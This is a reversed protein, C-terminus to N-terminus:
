GADDYEELSVEAEKDDIVEKEQPEAVQRRKRKKEATHLKHCSWVPLWQQSKECVAKGIISNSSYSKWLGSLNVQFGLNSYDKRNLMCLM